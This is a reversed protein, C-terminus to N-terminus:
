PPAGLPVPSQGLAPGHRFIRGAPLGGGCGPLNEGDFQFLEPHLWSDAGDFAVYIPIDGIIRIGRTM